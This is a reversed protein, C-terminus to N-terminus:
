RSNTSITRMRTVTSQLPADASQWLQAAAGAWKRATASRHRAAALDARLAMARGAAAAAGVEQLASASMTSIAHLSEDLQREAGATDGIAARIWAEQYTRDLSVDGPRYVRRVRAISDFIKDMAVRDRRAFAQLLLAANGAQPSAHIEPTAGCPVMMPLSRALLASRVKARQEDAISSALQDELERQLTALSDGCVGLAAYTFLQAAVSRLATGLAIGDVSPPIVYRAVEQTTARTKGTLATLGLLVPPDNPDGNPNQAILSDATGRVATYEGRKFQLRALRVALRLRQAADSSLAYAKRAAVPASETPGGRDFIDGRTELLDALSEYADANPTAGLWDNVIGFLVSLNRSLARDLSQTAAPPLGQRFVGIPYPVFALTDDGLSPFAAFKPSNPDDTRPTVATTPLLRRLRPFSLLIHSGPDVRLARVFSEVASEYSSRWRFGSPSAVDALVAGDFDQCEGLGYWGAFDNSDIQTLQRYANCADPYRKSALAALGLALLRDRDRMLAASAAARDAHDRWIQVAAPSRWERLQALWLRAVPFQPDIAVAAAFSSEAAAVKWDALYAHGRDYALLAAYKRTFREAGRAASPTETSTLLATAARSYSDPTNGDVVVDRITNSPSRADYLEARAKLTDGAHMIRGWVLQGAGMRRALAAAEHLTRPPHGASAVAEAVLLDPVLKVDEWQRFGEYLRDTALSAFAQERPDSAALPLIIIRASDVASGSAGRDSVISPNIAVVGVSALAAVGALSAIAHKRVWVAISNERRPFGSHRVSPAQAISTWSDSDMVADSAKHASAEPAPAKIRQAPQHPTTHERALGLTLAKAFEAAGPYRDSPNRALAVAIVQDLWGPSQSRITSPPPPPETFRKVFGEKGAFPAKGTVMEYLVCGLSYIDAKADVDREGLLQEPAMYAPTGPSGMGTRTLQRIGAVDIARAIGFDAVIAHGGSILINEPKIDRHIIGQAHAYALADAAEQAFCAADAIALRRERDIRKRVTEGSVYPMVYYLLAEVHGSDHLPLINPHQLRALMRIERIFRLEGTESTPDANLVKIAVKREHKLDRALYVTAFAGQGIEREIEYHGSLAARLPAIPDLPRGYTSADMINPPQLM